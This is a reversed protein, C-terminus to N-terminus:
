KKGASVSKYAAEIFMDSTWPGTKSGYRPEYEYTPKAAKVQELTMGKKIAARIRDRVIVLMDRYELVDAEDCLRGHGPIILTGGEEEHAPVALRLIVNLGDIVGQLSGGKAMDIQPYGETNFLDGASVVDSRRFFVISDGDTNGSAHIMQVAEENFYLEKEEGFYTSTPWAGTPTPAQKGTPASMRNLVNDHALIAAGQTADTLNGAVNAGTITVGARRLADNGGTHDDAYHTDLIYRIPKNTIQKIAALVKASADARGTDVLLVGQQGAQVTINGGAGVLMSVNGQVPLIHVEGDANSLAANQQSHARQAGFGALAILAALAVLTKQMRFIKM